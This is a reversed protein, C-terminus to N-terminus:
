LGLFIEKQIKYTNLTQALNWYKFMISRLISHTGKSGIKNKHIQPAQKIIQLRLDKFQGRDQEYLLILGAYDPICIPIAKIPAVYWFRNPVRAGEHFLCQGLTIHKRKKFDAEFDQKSIKIEYENM